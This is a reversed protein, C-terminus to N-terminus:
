CRIGPRISGPALCAIQIRPAHGARTTFLYHKGIWGPRTIEVMIQAGAHLRHKSFRRMLDITGPHQAPCRRRRMPTCRKAETVTTAPQRLLPCGRGHCTVLITAGTPAGNVVLALVTTYAHTYYFSWQMTSTITGLVRSPLYMISVPQAPSFSSGGFSRDGGYFATILHRGPQKYSVTCTATSSAGVNELPQSVCSTIPKGGDLFEVSGSPKVFGTHSPTVTATYRANAGVNVTPNSVDLSTSTSDRSVSLNDTASTSGAVSSGADPTFVATLLEPSTFAAFSAQCTIITSQTSTALVINVCGGIPAGGDEFTLVGSPPANSASSTVAAILTVRQNTVSASPSTTLM